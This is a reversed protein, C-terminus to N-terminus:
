PSLLANVKLLEAADFFWENLKFHDLDKLSSDVKVRGKKLLKVGKRMERSGIFPM